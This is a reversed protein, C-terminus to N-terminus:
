IANLFRSPWSTFRAEFASVALRLFAYAGPRLFFRYHAWPGARETAPHMRM